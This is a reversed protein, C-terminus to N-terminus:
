FSSRTAVLLQLGPVDSPANLPVALDVHVVNSFASRVSVIRLGVGADALWRAAPGGAYLTPRPAWARGVDVFMAAGFRFLHWLHVDTYVRREATLLVRRTGAQYRLPYGRLGNDGGLELRSAPDPRLLADTTAAAYFLRWPGQSRYYQAAVSAQQQRALGESVEGRLRASALLMQEAGPLFGRSVSGSYLLASRTSGVSPHALGVQAQVNLGLAFFEPRGILNRNFQREHRDDLLEYRLFPALLKQDTPLVAPAARGPVTSFSGESRTFGASYRRAWGDVLGASWGAFLEVRRERRRFQSQVQGAGYVSDVRNDDSISIGAAWRADVENFPRTVSAARRWGDDSSAHIVEISGWTGFMRDASLAYETTRRDVTNSHAVGLAMGTGLLNYDRLRLASRNTGGVRGFSVGPDISWTDRTAVEVDVAGDRVAVPRIQVDYVYRNARLLRETEEIVRASVPEGSAFLLARRIVEPRTVTHLANALRFLPKDEDPNRTDFINRPSIRIEGIRVGAAELEAFSPLAQAQAHAPIVAGAIM